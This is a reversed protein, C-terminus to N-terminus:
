SSFMRRGGFGLIQPIPQKNFFIGALLRPCKLVGILFPYGFICWLNFIRKEMTLKKGVIDWLRAPYYQIQRSAITEAAMSGSICAMDMGAGHLPSALAAADGVLLINGWVLKDISNSPCFSLFKRLIKYGDLGVKKLIRDLEHNLHLGRNKKDVNFRGVGVNAINQGKPFVWYYGIYHPEYGAMITNKDLFGFDGEIVYQAILAANRVYMPVFGYIRSTVSPAGSADIIYEYTDLMEWLQDKDIPSDEKISVGMQQAKKALEKQWTSRDIMWLGWDKLLHVQYEKGAFFIAKEVKFLVGAEPRGTVGLTDIFGEACKIGHGIKGKEHLFVRVGLETARIASSLGAPGGGIVAIPKDMDWVEV